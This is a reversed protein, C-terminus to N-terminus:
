AIGHHRQFESGKYGIRNFGQLDSEIIGIIVGVLASKIDHYPSIVVALWAHKKACRITRHCVRTGSNVSKDSIEEVLRHEDVAVEPYSPFLQRIFKKVSSQIHVSNKGPSM